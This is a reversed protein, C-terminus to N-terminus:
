EEEEMKKFKGFKEEWAERLRKMMLLGGKKYRGLFVWKNNEEDDYVLM